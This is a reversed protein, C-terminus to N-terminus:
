LSRLWDDFGLRDIAATGRRLVTDLTVPRETLAGLGLPVVGVMWTQFSFARYQDRATGGDLTVGHRSLEAVYHDILASEHAALLDPELSNILFYQVDRMGPCWQVGQFDLMGVRVEDGAPYEFCNGLHSDGHILTLPERYWFDLLTDWKEIALDCIATHEPTLVDPAARQARAIASANMSRTAERHRPALFTHLELPLLADRQAASWGWFTAHLEAFASLCRRARELTTGAAMDRNLFLEVGPSENLNELALVFRAGRQVVGYVRPVRIPVHHAIRECFTCELRWFGTANAFVRTTLDECPLKIYATRPVAVGASDTPEDFEIEVLFNRCNSSEFDIGPLRASVVPPLRAHGGPAHDRLLSNLLEPRAAHEPRAPLALGLTDGLRDLGIWGLAHAARSALQWTGRASM